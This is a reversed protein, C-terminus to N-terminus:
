VRSRAAAAKEEADEAEKIIAELQTWLTATDTDTAMTVAPSLLNIAIVQPPPPGSSRRGPSPHCVPLGLHRRGTLAAVLLLHCRPPPWFFAATWLLCRGLAAGFFSIAALAAALLPTAVGLTLV